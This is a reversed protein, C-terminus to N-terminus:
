NESEFNSTNPTIPDQWGIVGKEKSMYLIEKIQTNPNLGLAYGAFDFASRGKGCGFCHFTNYKPYYAFSPNRDDHFPCITFQPNGNGKFKLTVGLKDALEPIPISKITEIDESM